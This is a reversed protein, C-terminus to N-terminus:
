DLGGSYVFLTSDRTVIPGIEARAVVHDSLVQDTGAWFREQHREHRWQLTYVSRRADRLHLGIEPRFQDEGRMFDWYELQVHFPGPVWYGIYDRLDNGNSFDWYRFQAGAYAVPTAHAPAAVIACAAVAALAIRIWARRTM